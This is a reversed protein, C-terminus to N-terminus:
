EIAGIYFCLIGKKEAYSIAKSGKPAFIIIQTCGDFAGTEIVTQSNTIYINHLGSDRFAYAGIKLCSKPIFVDSADTGEFASEEISTINEPLGLGGTYPAEKFGLVTVYFNLDSRDYFVFVDLLIGNDMTLGTETLGYAYFYRRYIAQPKYAYWGNWTLYNGNYSYTEPYIYNGDITFHSERAKIQKKILDLFSSVRNGTVYKDYTKWEGTHIPYSENLSECTMYSRGSSHASYDDMFGYILDDNICFYEHGEEGSVAKSQGSPDDWTVDIHYSDGNLTVINWSHLNNSVRENPIGAADLLFQYAKSYSDCVGYGYFLVGEAGYYHYTLDYYAHHTLWDHLNLATRWLDGVVRCESLIQSVKDAMTMHKGDPEITFPQSRAYNSGDSLSVMAQLTYEGPVLFNCSEFTEGVDEELYMTSWARADRSQIWVQRSTIYLNDQLLSDAVEITWKGTQALSPERIQTITIKSSWKWSITWKATISSPQNVFREFAEVEARHPDKPGGFAGAAGPIFLLVALISLFLCSHKKMAEDGM